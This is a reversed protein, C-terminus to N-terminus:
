ARNRLEELMVAPPTYFPNEHLTGAVIVLPHGRLVDLILQGPFKKLDYACIVVDAYGALIDNMRAEYEVLDSVGPQAGLAWEMHAVARTLPYGQAKGDSLREQVLASMAYQDFHDDRLYSEAWPLFELQHRAEAALADIGMATLHQLHRDRDPPDVIHVARDGRSIGDAIFPGLVRYCEDESHFFAAIHREERVISGALPIASDPAHVSEIADLLSREAESKIVVVRAGARRAEDYLQQSDNMTLVLIQVTPARARIQRAAEIGNLKPMECDLVAVDPRFQAAREVAEEGDSAEACVTWQARSEVLARVSRRVAAHDDAILIRLAPM